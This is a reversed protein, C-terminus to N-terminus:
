GELFRVLDDISDTFLQHLLPLKPRRNMFIRDRAFLQLLKVFCPLQVRRTPSRPDTEIGGCQM